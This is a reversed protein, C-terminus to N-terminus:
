GGKVPGRQQRRPVDLDGSFPTSYLIPRNGDFLTAVFEDSLVAREPFMGALTSKGAGSPGVLLAGRGGLVLGCGHILAGGRQALVVTVLAKLAAHMGLPQPGSYGVPNREAYSVRGRGTTQNLELHFWRDDHMTLHRRQIEVVPGRRSRDDADFGQAFRLRLEPTGGTFGGYRRTLRQLAETSAEVGIGIGAITLTTRSTM